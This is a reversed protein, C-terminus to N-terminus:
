IVSLVAHRLFPTIDRVRNEKRMKEKCYTEKTTCAVGWTNEESDSIM